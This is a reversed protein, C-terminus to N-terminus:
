GLNNLINEIDNLYEIHQKIKSYDLYRDKFSEDRLKIINFEISNIKEELTKTIEAKLNNIKKDIHSKILM